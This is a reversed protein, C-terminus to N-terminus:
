IFSSTFLKRQMQTLYETEKKLLPFDNEELIRNLREFESLISDTLPDITICKGDTVSTQIKGSAAKFGQLHPADFIGIKVANTLTQPHCFPDKVSEESINRIAQLILFVDSILRSKYEVLKPDLHVSPLGRMSNLIIKRAIKASEIIDEPTAAHDAECFSVVHVIHPNMFMALQISSALQGKSLDLDEPFSLLGSRVQRYTKFTKEHLREILETKAMMKALDFRPSIGIPTDFMMQSIYHQIGAKKANYAGLFAAAVAIADPASRLSWHHSENSEFPLNQKAHWKMNEQNEKIASQLTRNSRGDLESYWFLPTAGWANNITNKLLSAMKVLNQTGSYCRLLPFNGHKSAQYFSTLDEKSRISVGGAGQEFEKMKEPCFFHEQFNQDPGISIIDIAGALAITKIGDVTDEVSPLGFHARILPYPSFAKIRDIITNPHVKEEKITSYSNRCYEIVDIETSQGTFFHDFLGLPKIAKCVPSTGGFIWEKERMKPTMKEILKSVIEVAVKPTLRYSLAVIDPDIIKIEKIIDNITNPPHLFTTKYGQEQSIQMFNFIGAVHVCSGLTACLIHKKQKM